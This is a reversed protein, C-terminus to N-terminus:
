KRRVLLARQGIGAEVGRVQRRRQDRRRGIRRDLGRCHRHRPRPRQGVRRDVRRRRRGRAGVPRCRGIRRHRHRAVAGQGRRAGNGVRRRRCRGQRRRRPRDVPRGVGRSRGQLRRGVRDIKMNGSGAIAAGRLGATTVTMRVKSDDNSWSWRSNKKTPGIRLVGDVVKVETEDLFNAGGRATVGPQGGSTVTVEYPGATEIRDFAAVQYTRDVAPGADRAEARGFMNCGGALAAISGLAVLPILRKM